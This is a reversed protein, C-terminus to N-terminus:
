TRSRTTSRFAIPAAGTHKHFYKSFNTASSFGLETAIRAAPWQSHALLRKAELVVRRDIFEKANVGADALTAPVPHAVLLGTGPCLRGPLPQPPLRARRRRPLAPLGRETPVCPQEDATRRGRPEAGPVRAPAASGLHPHRDTPAPRRPFERTLHDVATSLAKREDAGGPTVMVPGFPDDLRALAVTDPDLFGREFLILEGEANGVDGWQQVQGPRVWLWSGPALAYGTLDVDHVLAGSTVTLLQHFEPRAPVQLVGAPARSRLDALSMVEVGTPTGTPAAFAVEAIHREKVM